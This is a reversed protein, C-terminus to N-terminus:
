VATMWAGTVDRFWHGTEFYQQGQWDAPVNMVGSRRSVEPRWNSSGVWLPGGGYFDRKRLAAPRFRVALGPDALGVQVAGLLPQVGGRDPLPLRQKDM